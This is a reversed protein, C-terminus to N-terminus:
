IPKSVDTSYARFFKNLNRFKSNCLGFEVKSNPRIRIKFVFEISNPRKLALNLRELALNPRKLVLNSKKFALIPRLHVKIQFLFSTEM